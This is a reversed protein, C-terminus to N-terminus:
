IFCIQKRYISPVPLNSGKKGAAGQSKRAARPIDNDNGVCGESAGPSAALRTGGPPNAHEGSSVGSRQAGSGWLAAPRSAGTRPHFSRLRPSIAGQFFIMEFSRASLRQITSYFFPSVTISSLQFYLGKGEPQVQVPIKWFIEVCTQNM